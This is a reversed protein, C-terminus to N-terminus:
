REHINLLVIKLNHLIACVGCLNEDLDTWYKVLLISQAPYVRGTWLANEWCVELLSCMIFQVKCYYTVKADNTRRVHFFICFSQERCVLVVSVELMFRTFKVDITNNWTIM